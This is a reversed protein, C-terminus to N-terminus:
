GPENEKKGHKHQEAQYKNAKEVGGITGSMDTNNAPWPYFIGFYVALIVVIASAGMLVKTRKNVQKRNNDTM